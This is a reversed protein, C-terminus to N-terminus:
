VFLHTKVTPITISFSPSDFETYEKNYLKDVPNVLLLKMFSDPNSKDSM